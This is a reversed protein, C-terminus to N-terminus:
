RFDQQEDATIKLKLLDRSIKSKRYRITRDSSVGLEEKLKEIDRIKEFFYKKVFLALKFDKEAIYQDYLDQYLRTRSLQDM